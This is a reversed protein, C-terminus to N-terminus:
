LVPLSATVESEIGCHNSGRLIKFYGNDGWDENWSNAILWYPTDNEVGWGIIKVAHGGVAKTSIKQYVGSKYSPFDDYVTYGAEVPGNKYIELQIQKVSYFVDFEQGFTKSEAFDLSTDYCKAVCEPTDLDLLDCNPRNGTDIHHDCPELSYDQCGQSSNYLGGTVIGTERWYDWAEDIYGGHCGYGYCCATLEEASVYIQKTQGSHICIRDSMAEVAGLAWCSGCSSQDRIQKLSDCNPWAERADFSEPVDEDANHPNSRYSKKESSPRHLLGSALKKVKEWDQIEFNKGAKWTTAKQNIIAINEESLPHYDLFAASVASLAVVAAFALFLKM